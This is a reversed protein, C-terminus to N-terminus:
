DEKPKKNVKVNAKRKKADLHIETTTEGEVRILEEFLKLGPCQAGITHSGADVSNLTLPGGDTRDAYEGDMQVQCKSPETTIKITGHPMVTSGRYVNEKNPWVNFRVNILEKGQDMIILKLPGSRFPKKNIPSKGLNEGDLYVDSNPPDTIITITGKGNRPAMDEDDNAFVNASLALTLAVPLALRFFNM